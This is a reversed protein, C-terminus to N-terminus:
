SITKNAISNSKIESIWYAELVVIGFGEILSPNLLVQSQGILKVKDDHSVRGTFIVNNQIGLSKSKEVLSQKTPGDGVLVLKADPIKKIVISFADLIVDLNKYFILRGVFIAQNKTQTNNAQYQSPDIGNPIVTIKQKTGLAIM